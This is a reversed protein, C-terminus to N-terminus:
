ASQHSPFFDFSDLGARELETALVINPTSSILTLMGSVLSAYALPLLLRSANLDTQRTVALVIPLFIAVVATNSMFAGLAAVLVTLVLILQLEGERGYKALAGGVFHAVGTRTLMESIILLGAVTIVVPDGFGVLAEQPTLVNGLVLSLVVLLAVIDLRVRGSLILIAAIAVVIALFLIQSTLTSGESAM